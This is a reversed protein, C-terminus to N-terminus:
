QVIVIRLMENKIRVSYVGEAISAPLVVKEKQETILGNLVKRGDFSYIEYNSNLYQSGIVIEFMGNNPNPYVDIGENNILQALSSSSITLSLTIISDCGNQNPIIATYVGSESYTQGNISWTFDGFSSETITTDSNLNVSVSVSDSGLCGNIDNGNLFYTGSQFPVFGVGDIVGNSWQLTQAGSGQLIVSDGECVSVDQGADVQPNPNVIINLTDSNSCNNGDIGIAIIEQSSLPAFSTNNSIGNSWNITSVGTANLTVTEGECVSVDQGADIQPNPNVTIMLTDSNSCNNGDVVTAIIEQSSLPIFSTNNSIGNSWTITSAGTVNLIIAEGDCVTVDLGADINPLANVLINLTDTSICFNNYGSYGTVIFQYNGSDLVVIDGDVNGSNWVTSSVGSSNIVITSFACITTDNGTHVNAGLSIYLDSTDPFLCHPYFAQLTLIVYGQDYDAQDPYYLANLNSSNNFNGSYGNYWSTWVMSDANYLEIGNLQVPNNGCSYIWNNGSTDAFFNQSNDFTVNVTDVLCGNTSATYGILTTNNYGNPYNTFHVFDTTSSSMQEIYEYNSNLDSDDWYDNKPIEFLGFSQCPHITTDIVEDSIFNHDSDVYISDSYSCGNLIYTFTVFQELNPINQDASWFQGFGYGPIESTSLVGGPINVYATLTDLTTGCPNINVHFDFNVQNVTVNVNDSTTCGNVTYSASYSTTTTPSVMIQSQQNSPASLNPGSWLYNGNDPTGNGNLQISTGSCITTDSINLTPTPKVTVTFSTTPGPFNPCVSNSNSIPTVFYTVVQNVSTTNILVDNITNTSQSSTEGIVNNNSQAGWYYNSNAGNNLAVNLSDGSCIEINNLYIPPLVVTYDVLTILTNQTFGVCGFQSVPTLDLVITCLSYQSLNIQINNWNSNWNSTQQTTPCPSISSSCGNSYECYLISSPVNTQIPIDINTSGGCFAMPIPSIITPTPNVMVMAVESSINNCGSIICYYYITNATSTTPTYSNSTAGSILTGGSNSNVINSYWQYNANPNDVSVTLPSASTNQCVQQSIPQSTIFCQGLIKFSLIIAFLTFVITKM